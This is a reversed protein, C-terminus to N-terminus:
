LRGENRAQILHDRMRVARQSSIYRDLFKAIKPIEKVMEKTLSQYPGSYDTLTTHVRGLKRMLPEDEKTFVGRQICLEIVEEFNLPWAVEPKIGEDLALFYFRLKTCIFTFRRVLTHVYIKSHIRIGEHKFELIEVVQGLAIKAQSLLSDERTSTFKM